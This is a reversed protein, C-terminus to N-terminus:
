SVCSYSSVIGNEFWLRKAAIRQAFIKCPKRNCSKFISVRRHRPRDATGDNRCPCLVVMGARHPLCFWPAMQAHGVGGGPFRDADIPVRVALFERALLRVIGGCAPALSRECGSRRSADSPRIPRSGSSGWAPSSSPSFRSYMACLKGMQQQATYLPKWTKISLGMTSFM